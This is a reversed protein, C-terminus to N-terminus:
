KGGAEEKLFRVHALTLLTGFALCHLAFLIEVVYSIAFTRTNLVYDFGGELRVKSYDTALYVPEIGALSLVQMVSWIVLVVLLTDMVLLASLDPVKRNTELVISVVAVLLACVALHFLSRNYGQLLVDHLYAVPKNPKLQLGFLDKFDTMFGLSLVFLVVCMVLFCVAIIRQLRFTREM